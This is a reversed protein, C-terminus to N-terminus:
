IFSNNGFITICIFILLSHLFYKKERELVFFSVLKRRVFFKSSVEENIFNLNTILNSGYLDKQLSIKVEGEKYIGEDRRIDRRDETVVEHVANGIFKYSTSPRPSSFPSLTPPPPLPALGRKIRFGVIRPSHLYSSKKLLDARDSTCEHDIARTLHIRFGLDPPAHVRVDTCLQRTTENHARPYLRANLDDRGGGRSEIKEARNLLVLANPTLRTIKRTIASNFAYM